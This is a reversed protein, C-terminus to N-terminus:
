SRVGAFRDPSFREPTEAGLLAAVTLEATIPTLLVGNRYHGTAYYLGRVEDTSGLLPANDPTGPRLGAITEEVILELVGPVIEAADRLLEHIGWATVTTDFGRDESTAGVVLRGDSRPVIYGSNFRLVRQILGYGAPDRLRLTQGKVPRVPVRAHTPIGSLRGSWAGAAVVVAESRVTTGDDLTVGTIRGPESDLERAGNRARITVGASQAAAVLADCVRRPDVCHDDPAEAALCVSAGLAPEVVRARSAALRRVRLSLCERLECERVLAEASDRDGAVLLTGCARYRTAVGTLHELELAFAPWLGASELCLELLTEDALDAESVPALMGAAVHSAGRGPDGRDVVVVRLGQASARWAVALGVIGAGVVVVDYVQPASTM